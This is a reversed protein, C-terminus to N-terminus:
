IRMEEILLDFLNIQRAEVEPSLMKKIFQKVEPWTVIVEYTKYGGKIEANSIWLNYGVNFRTHGGSQGQFEPTKWHELVHEFINRQVEEWELHRWDNYSAKPYLREKVEWKLTTLAYEMTQMWLWKQILKDETVGGISEIM